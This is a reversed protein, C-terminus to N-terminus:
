SHTWRAQLRRVLLLLLPRIVYYQRAVKCGNYCHLFFHVVFELHTDTAKHIWCAIRMRWITITAQEAWRYKWYIEYVARNGFLFFNNFMFHTNQNERCIEHSVNKMRPLFSLSIIFFTCQERLTSTIITM